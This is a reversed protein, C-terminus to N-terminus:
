EPSLAGSRRVFDEIRRRELVSDTYVRNKEPSDRWLRARRDLEAKKQFLEPLEKIRKSLLAAEEVLSQERKRLRKLVRIGKCASEYAAFLKQATQRAAAESQYESQGLTRVYM